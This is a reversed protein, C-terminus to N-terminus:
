RPPASQAQRLIRLWNSEGIRLERCVSLVELAIADPIRKGTELSWDVLNAGLLDIALEPDGADVSEIVSRIRDETAYQTSRRALVVIRSAQEMHAKVTGLWRGLVMGEAWSCALVPM